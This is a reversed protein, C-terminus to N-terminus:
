ESDPGTPELLMTTIHRQLAMLDNDIDVAQDPGTPELLMTAIHRPLAMPDNDIDVAQDIEHLFPINLVFCLYCTAMMLYDQYFNEACLHFQIVQGRYGTYREINPYKYDPGKLHAYEKKINAQLINEDVHPSGPPVNFYVECGHDDSHVYVHPADCPLKFQYHVTEEDSYAYYFNKEGLLKKLVKGLIFFQRAVDHGTEPAPYHRFM